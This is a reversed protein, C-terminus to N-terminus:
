RWLVCLAISSVAELVLLSGALCFAGDPIAARWALSLPLAWPPNLMVMPQVYSWCPLARHCLDCPRFLSQLPSFLRGGAWIHHLRERAASRLAADGASPALGPLVPGCAAAAVAM